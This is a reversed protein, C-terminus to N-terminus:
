CSPFTFEDALMRGMASALPIREFTKSSTVERSKSESKGSSTQVSAKHKEQNTSYSIPMVKPILSFQRSSYGPIASLTTPYSFLNGEEHQPQYLGNIANMGQRVEGASKSSGVSPQDPMVITLYTDGSAANPNGKELTGYLWSPVPKKVPYRWLHTRTIYFLQSDTKGAEITNTYGVTKSSNTLAAETAKIKDTLNEIIKAAADGVEKKGVLYTAALKVGQRVMGMTGTKAEIGLPGFAELSSTAEFKTDKVDTNSSSRSYVTKAAPEYNFNVKDGM